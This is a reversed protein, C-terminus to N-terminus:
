KRNMERSKEGFALGLLGYMPENGLLTSLHRTVIVIIVKIRTWANSSLDLVESPLEPFTERTHITSM